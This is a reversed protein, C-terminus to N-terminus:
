LKLVNMESYKIRILIYVNKNVIKKLVILHSSTYAAAPQSEKETEPMCKKRSFNRELFLQAKSHHKEFKLMSYIM